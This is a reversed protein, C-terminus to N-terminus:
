GKQEIDNLISKNRKSMDRLKLLELYKKLDEKSEDELNEIGTVDDIELNKNTNNKTKSEVGLLYDTTVGFYEALFIITDIDPNHKGTEWKTLTTRNIHLLNAVDDQSMNIKQRLDKLRNM